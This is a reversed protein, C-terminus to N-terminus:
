AAQYFGDRSVRSNGHRAQLIQADAQSKYQKNDSETM